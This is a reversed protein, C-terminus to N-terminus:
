VGSIVEYYICDHTCKGSFAGKCIPMKCLMQAEDDTRSIRKRVYGINEFNAEKGKELAACTNIWVVSCDDHACLDFSQRFDYSGTSFSPVIILTLKFCRMLQEMYQTTLFDKCILIAIRGIGEFHFINVVLSSYIGELYGTGDKEMRFPNQKSQRCIVNGFKDLITVTNYNKSWFSPLVIMSPINEAEEPPLSKIKQAVFSIMDPNGLMEPFVIIDSKNHASLLIKQWILENDESFDEEDYAIRFYQVKDKDYSLASFKPELRLPTVAVKLMRRKEFDAFLEKKLFFHKDILEGLISNEMLLMNFLFNDMRNYYHSLRRKREWVCSCRPLLGIGVSERNTNLVVSFDDQQFEAIKKRLLSELGEDLVQVLGVIAFFDQEVRLFSILEDMASFFDGTFDSESFQRVDEGSFLMPVKEYIIGNIRSKESKSICSYRVFFDETCSGIVLSCLEAIVNYINLM